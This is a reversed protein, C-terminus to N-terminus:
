LRHSIIIFGSVEGCPLWSHTFSVSLGSPEREEGGWSGTRLAGQFLEEQGGVQPQEGHGEQHHETHLSGACVPALEEEDLLLALRNEHTLGGILHVPSLADVCKLSVPEYSVNDM